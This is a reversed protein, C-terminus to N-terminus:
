AVEERENLADARLRRHRSLPSPETPPEQLPKPRERSGGPDSEAVVGRRERSSGGTASLSMHDPPDTATAPFNDVPEPRM